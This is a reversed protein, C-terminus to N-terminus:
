ISARNLREYGAALYADVRSSKGAGQIGMVIVVEPSQGPGANMELTPLTSGPMPVAM